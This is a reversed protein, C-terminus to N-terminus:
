GRERVLWDPVPVMPVNQGAMAHTCDGLFQWVGDRLFSHCLPMSGSQYQLISPNLTPADVSGNWEWHPGGNRPLTGDEGPVPISKAHDCAPCWMWLSRWPPMDDPDGHMRTKAVVLVPNM